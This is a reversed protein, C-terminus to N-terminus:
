QMFWWSWESSFIILTIQGVKAPAVFSVPSHRAHQDFASLEVCCLYTINTLNPFRQQKPEILWLFFSNRWIQCLHASPSFSSSILHQRDCAVDTSYRICSWLFVKFVNPLFRCQSTLISHNSKTTSPWLDHDSRGTWGIWEMTTFVIHSSHWPFTFQKLNSKVRQM